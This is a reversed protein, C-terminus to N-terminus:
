ANSILGQDEPDRDEARMDYYYGANVRGLLDFRDGQRRALLDVRSNLGSQGVISPEDDRLQIVDQRYYQSVGGSFEWGGVESVPEPRLAQTPPSAATVLGALRQRVRQAEVGDPFEALYAQYEARAHALQGNRERAVGLLERAERRGGYSPDELLRTYIQIGRAYDQALLAARAEEVLEAAREESLAEIGENAAPETVPDPAESTAADSGSLSNARARTQEEIPAVAVIAEPFEGVLGSLASGAEAETEFFGLRLETWSQRGANVENIYLIPDEFDAFMSDALDVPPLDTGLQVVYRETARPVPQVLRMPERDPTQTEIENQAEPEPTVPPPSAEAQPLPPIIAPQPMPTEIPPTASPTISPVQTSPVQTLRRREIEVSLRLTNRSRGQSVELTTSREFSVMLAAGGAGDTHLTVEHIGAIDRGQPNYLESRLSNGIEARCGEELGLRILFNAGTERPSHSLYRVACPFAFEATAVGGERSIRIDEIVRGQAFASDASLALLGVAMCLSMNTLRPRQLKPAQRGLSDMM